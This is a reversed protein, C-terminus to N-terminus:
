RSRHHSGARPPMRFTQFLQWSGRPRIPAMPSPFPQCLMPCSRVPMIRMPMPWDTAPL